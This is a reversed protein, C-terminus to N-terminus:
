IRPPLRPRSRLRCSSYSRVKEDDDGYLAVRKEWEVVENANRRLLVENVLFPRRDMLEEFEKMAGDLERETEEKDDEEEDDEDDAEPDALAEMLTSILTESFEAFADFIQTFDRITLVSALGSEFSHKAQSLLFLLFLIILAHLM